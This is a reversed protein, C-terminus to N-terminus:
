IRCANATQQSVVSWDVFLWKISQSVNLLGVHQCISQHKVYTKWKQAWSLKNILQWFKNNMLLYEETNEQCLQFSCTNMQVSITCLTNLFSFHFIFSREPHPTMLWMTVVSAGIDGGEFMQQAISWHFCLQLVDCSLKCSLQSNSLNTPQKLSKFVSGILLVCLLTMGCHSLLSAVSSKSANSAISTNCTYNTNIPNHEPCSEPAVLCCKVPFHFM